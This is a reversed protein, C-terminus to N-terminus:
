EILRREFVFHINRRSLEAFAGQGVHLRPHRRDNMPKGPRQWCATQSRTPLTAM